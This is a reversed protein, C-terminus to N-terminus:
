RGFLEVGLKKAFKGMLDPINYFDTVGVVTGCSACEEGDAPYTLSAREGALGRQRAAFHQAAPLHRPVDSIPHNGYEGADVRHLRALRANPISNQVAAM